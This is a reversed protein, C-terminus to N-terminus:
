KSNSLIKDFADAMSTGAVVVIVEQPLPHKHARFEDVMARAIELPPIGTEATSCLPPMVVSHFGKINSAVLAARTARRIGEVGVRDSASIALPVHILVNAATPGGDTVVAAGVAIPAADVVEEEIALGGMEKIARGLKSTLAGTTTTPVVLATAETTLIDDQIITIEVNSQLQRPM